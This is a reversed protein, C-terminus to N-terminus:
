SKRLHHIKIDLGINDQLHRLKINVSLLQKVRGYVVLAQPSTAQAKSDYSLCTQLGELLETLLSLKITNAASDRTTVRIPWFKNEREQYRAHLQGFCEWIRGLKCVPPVACQLSLPASESLFNPIRLVHLM